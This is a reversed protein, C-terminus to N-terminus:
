KKKFKGTKVIDNHSILYVYVGKALTSVNVTGIDINKSIVQSLVIEGASNYIKIDANHRESSNIDVNLITSTPNPYILIDEEGKIQPNNTEGKLILLEERLSNLENSLEKISEVLYPIIATYNIGQEGNKDIHVIDPIVEKVEQAIFGLQRISNFDRQKFEQQKWYYSKGDLRKIIDLANEIKTINRKFKKDSLFIAGNARVIGNVTLKYNPRTTGIGVNGSQLVVFRNGSPGVHFTGDTRMIGTNHYFNKNNYTRIWYKDTMYFGGGYSQFYLGRKGSVRLWGGNAYIDGQTQLKYYPRNTGVGVKGHTYIDNSISTAQGGTTKLWDFDSKGASSSSVPYEKVNGSSDTGLLFSPSTANPLNQFRVTGNTHLRASPANTGIGLNNQASLLMVTNNGNLWSFTPRRNITQQTGGNGWPFQTSPNGSPAKLNITPAVSAIFKILPQNGYDLNRSTTGHIQLALNSDIGSHAWIAPQFENNDTTSNTIELFDKTVGKVGFRAVREAKLSGASNADHPYPVQSFAYPAGLFLMLISTQLMKKM